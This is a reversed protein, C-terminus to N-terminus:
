WRLLRCIIAVFVIRFQLYIFLFSELFVLLTKCPIHILARARGRYVMLLFLM